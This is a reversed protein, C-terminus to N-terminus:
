ERWGEEGENKEREEGDKEEEEEEKEGEEEAEEGAPIFGLDGTGDSSHSNDGRPSM